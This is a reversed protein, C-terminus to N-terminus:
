GAKRKLKYKAEFELPSMYGLSSHVYLKNYDNEFWNELKEKAEGLAEFKNLWIVEEKIVRMM